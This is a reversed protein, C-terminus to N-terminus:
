QVAITVTNSPVAGMSIVVPVSNGPAVGVPVVANVQYARGAHAGTRLFQRSSSCRRNYGGPEHSDSLAACVPGSVGDPPQNTVAGLGTCYIAVYSGRAAPTAPAALQASAAVLVAGQGSGSADASFIGPSFPAINVTQAQSIMGGSTIAISVQSQGALDWPIQVNVQGASAFYLPAVQGGILISSQSLSLPLPGSTM